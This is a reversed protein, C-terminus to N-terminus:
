LSMKISIQLNISFLDYRLTASFDVLYCATNYFLLLISFFFFDTVQFYFNHHVNQHNQLRLSKPRVTLVFVAVATNTVTIPSSLKSINAVSKVHQYGIRQISFIVLM